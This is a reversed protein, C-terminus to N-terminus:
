EQAPSYVSQWKFNSINNSFDVIQWSGSFYAPVRGSKFMASADEGSTWVSKPMIGDNNLDIFKQLATKTADDTTYADGSDNLFFDQGGYQYTFARLRHDSADMVMGYKADTKEVVQNIADLFEDWTWIDDESQPYSVGAEDFLDTNLFLGTATVDSPLAKVVDEENKITMSELTNADEAVATLDILYDNWDPLVTSVRVVEPADDAQVAKTIKTLLDDYPVDTVEVTVGTEEQYKEAMKTYAGGESTDGSVFMRIEKADNSSDNSGCGAAALLLAAMSVISIGLKKNM